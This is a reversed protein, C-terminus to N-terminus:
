KGYDRKHKELMGYLAPYLDIWDSLLTTSIMLGEQQM